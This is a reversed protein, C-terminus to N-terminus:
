RGIWRCYIGTPLVKAHPERSIERASDTRSAPPFGAITQALVSLLLDRNAPHKRRSRRSEFGRGGAHCAACLVGRNEVRLGSLALNAPLEGLKRGVRGRGIVPDGSSGAGDLGWRPTTTSCTPLLPLGEERHAQPKCRSPTRSRWWPLLAILDETTADPQALLDALQCILNQVTCISKGIATNQRAPSRSRAARRPSLRAM